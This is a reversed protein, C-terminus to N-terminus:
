FKRFGNYSNYEFQYYFLKRISIDKDIQKACVVQVYEGGLLHRLDEDSLLWM